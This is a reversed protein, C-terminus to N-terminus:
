MERPKVEHDRDGAPFAPLSGAPRFVRDANARTGLDEAWTAIDQEASGVAARLFQLGDLLEQRASAVARTWDATLSVRALEIESFYENPFEGLQAVAAAPDDIALHGAPELAAADIVIPDGTDGQRAAAFDAIFTADLPQHDGHRTPCTGALVAAMVDTIDGRDQAVAAIVRTMDDRGLM